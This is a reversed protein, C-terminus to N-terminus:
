VRARSLTRRFTTVETLAHTIPDEPHWRVVAVGHREFRARVAERDLLWIRRAIREVEGEPLDLFEDVPLEIVAVDFGRGRLDAFADVARRDLLPSLGLILAHPPLAKSPVAGVGRWFLERRIKSEMLTDLIRYRQRDGMGPQLWRVPEGFTVLGVRDHRRLHGEAIAAAARVSYDLTTAVGGRPENLTDVLVVVDANREPHRDSVWVGRGRATVRWNILRPDDGPAFRRMEAFELGGGRDRSVLDGFSRQTEIPRLLRRLVSTQPYVRLEIRPRYEAVDVFLGQRLRVRIWDPRYVGWHSCRMMLRATAPGGPHRWVARHGTVSARAVGEVSELELGDIPEVAVEIWGRRPEDIDVVLAVVEGEIARDRAFRAAAEGKGAAGAAIGIGALIIFPAGLAVLATEGIALGGAMAVIGVVTYARLRPSVLRSM